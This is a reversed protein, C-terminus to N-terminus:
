EVSQARLLDSKKTEAAAKVYSCIKEIVATQKALMLNVVFSPIWGKPDISIYDIYNYYKPRSDLRMHLWSVGLGSTSLWLKDESLNTMVEDATVKLLSTVQDHPAYRVFSATLLLQSM